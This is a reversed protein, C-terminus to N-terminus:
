MRDAVAAVPSRYGREAFVGRRSLAAVAEVTIRDLRRSMEECATLASLLEADAGSDAVASLAEAAEDLLRRAIALGSASM